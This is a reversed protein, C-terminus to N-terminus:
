ERFYIKDGSFALFNTQFDFTAIQSKNSSVSMPYEFFSLESHLASILNDMDIAFLGFM